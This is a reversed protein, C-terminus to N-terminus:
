KLCLWVAKYKWKGNIRSAIYVVMQEEEEQNNPYHDYIGSVLDQCPDCIIRDGDVDRFCEVCINNM